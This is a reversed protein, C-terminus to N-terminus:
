PGTAPIQSSPMPTGSEESVGEHLPLEVTFVAGHGPESEVWIEGHMLEVLQKAIATGLGTGGFKRTVSGRAQTYSGFIEKIRDKPIGIGTDEVSFLLNLQSKYAEMLTVTIVIRGQETFKVANSVLNSIM